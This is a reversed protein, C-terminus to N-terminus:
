KMLYEMDYLLHYLLTMFPYFPFGESVSEYIFFFISPNYEIFYRINAEHKEISRILIRTLNYKKM